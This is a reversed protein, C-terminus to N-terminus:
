HDLMGYSKPWSKFSYFKHIHYNSDPLYSVKLNWVTGESFVNWLDSQNVYNLYYHFCNNTKNIDLHLLEVYLLNLCM